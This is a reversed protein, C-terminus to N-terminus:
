TAGRVLEAKMAERIQFKQIKGTVTTPFAEVFRIYRPIKYHAIEGRCFGRIDDETVAADKRLKIWACVEEGSLPGVGDHQAVLHGSARGACARAGPVGCGAPRKNTVM